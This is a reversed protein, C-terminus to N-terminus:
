LGSKRPPRTTWRPRCRFQAARKRRPRFRALPRSGNQRKQTEPPPVANAVAALYMALSLVIVCVVSGAGACRPAPECGAIRRIRRVLSGGRAPLSLVTPTTRLEEIALLARGYDARCGTIGMAVDDCCHERENRLQGSLWWVAPHYFFVTEILAQFLNVLNDHRRIHALEHALISELQVAPLGTVVSLPLVVVPRFCGVVVPTKVWVSQLVDVARSLRLRKAVRNRMQQVFDDAPEVGVTRLRQTTYWSFLPRFAALLVGGLWLMAIDLLRPQILQKAKSRFFVLGGAGPKSHVPKAQPTGVTSAAPSAASPTARDTYSVGSDHTQIEAPEFAVPMVPTEASWPSFWTAVPVAVLLFVAVLLARYRTIASRRQLARQLLVALLAVLAFQWLSHVLVWGIREAGISQMLFELM